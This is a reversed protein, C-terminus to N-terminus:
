SKEENFNSATNSPTQQYGLRGRTVVVLVLAVACFGLLLAMNGNQIMWQTSFLSTAATVGFADLASHLLITIFLSGRVHNFVWTIVITLGINGIIAVGIDSWGAGGGWDTLYLPLHWCQWLIGLIIGGGLVPGLQQQLRPLAFGRWGPEEALGSTLIEMILALPYLWIIQPIVPHLAAHAGPLALYGAVVVIPVGCLVAPYWYWSVRWQIIRHLLRSVGPRGELAATMLFGSLCPGLFAGPLAAFQGPSIPLLGLGNKSLVYPLWAIWSFGYAMLFYCLLAHRQLFRRLGNSSSVATHGSSSIDM